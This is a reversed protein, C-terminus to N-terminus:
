GSRSSRKTVIWTDLLRYVVCDALSPAETADQPKSHQHWITIHATPEILRLNALHRRGISGLGVILARM